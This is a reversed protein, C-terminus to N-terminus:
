DESACLRQFFECGGFLHFRWGHAPDDGSEGPTSQDVDVGIGLVGAAHDNTGSGFACLDQLLAAFHADCVESRMEFLECGVLKGFQPFSHFDQTTQKSIPLLKPRATVMWDLVM